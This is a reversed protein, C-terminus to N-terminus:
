MLNVEWFGDFGWRTKIWLVRELTTDRATGDCKTLKGPPRTMFIFLMENLILIYGFEDVVCM